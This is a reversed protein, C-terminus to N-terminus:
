QIVKSEDQDKEGHINSCVVDYNMLAYFTDPGHNKPNACIDAISEYANKLIASIVPMVKKYNVSEWQITLRRRGQDWKDIQYSGEILNIALDKVANQSFNVDEDISSAFWKDLHQGEIQYLIGDAKMKSFIRLGDNGFEEKIFKETIGDVTHALMAIKYTSRDQFYKDHEKSLIINQHNTSYITESAEILIKQIEGKTLEIMQDLSKGKHIAKVIELAKAHGIKKGNRARNVTARDMLNGAIAKDSLHPFQQRHNNILEQLEATLKQCNLSM